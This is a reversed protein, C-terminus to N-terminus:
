LVLWHLQGAESSVDLKVSL